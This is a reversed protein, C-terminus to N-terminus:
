NRNSVLLPAYVYGKPTGSVKGSVGITYVKKWPGKTKKIMVKQGADLKGVIKGKLSGSRRIDARSKAYQIEGTSSSIMSRMAVPVSKLETLQPFIAWVFASAAAFFILNLVFLIKTRRAIKEKNFLYTIDDAESSYFSRASMTGNFLRRSNSSVALDVQSVNSTRKSKREAKNGDMLIKQMEEHVKAIAM